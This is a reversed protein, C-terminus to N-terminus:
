INYISEALSTQDQMPKARSARMANPAARPPLGNGSERISTPPKGMPPRTAQPGREMQIPEDRAMQPAGGTNM